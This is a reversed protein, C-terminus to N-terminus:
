NQDVLSQPVLRQGNLPNPLVNTLKTPVLIPYGDKSLACPPHAHVCLNVKYNGREEQATRQLDLSLNYVWLNERSHVLPLKSSPDGLTSSQQSVLHLPQRRPSHLHAVIFSCIHLFQKTCFNSHQMQVYAVALSTLLLSPQPPCSVM